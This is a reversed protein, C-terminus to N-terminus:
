EVEERRRAEAIRFKREVVKFIRWLIWGTAALAGFFASFGASEGTMQTAESVDDALESMDFNWVEVHEWLKPVLFGYFIFGVGFVGGVALGVLIDRKLSM